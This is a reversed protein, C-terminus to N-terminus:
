NVYKKITKNGDKCNKLIDMLKLLKTISDEESLLDLFQELADNKEKKINKNGDKCNKLIDM